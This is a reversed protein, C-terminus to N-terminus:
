FVSVCHFHKKKEHEAMINHFTKLQQSKLKRNHDNLATQYIQQKNSINEMKVYIDMIFLFFHTQNQSVNYSKQKFLTNANAFVSLM